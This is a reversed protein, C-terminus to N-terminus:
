VMVMRQLRIATSHARGMLLGADTYTWGRKILRDVIRARAMVADHSRSPSMIVHVSLGYKDAEEQVIGLGEHALASSLIKM